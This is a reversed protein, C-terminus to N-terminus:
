SEEEVLKLKNDKAFRRTDALAAQMREVMGRCEGLMRHAEEVQKRHVSKIAMSAARVVQRSLEFAQERARDQVDLGVRIEDCIHDIDSLM